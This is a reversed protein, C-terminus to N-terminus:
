YFMMSSLGPSRWQVIPSVPQSSRHFRCKQKRRLNKKTLISKLTHHRETERPLLPFDRNTNRVISQKKIFFNFGSSLTLFQLFLTDLRKTTSKKQYNRDYKGQQYQKDSQYEQIFDM